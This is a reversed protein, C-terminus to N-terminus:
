NTYVLHINIQYLNLSSNKALEINVETGLGEEAM